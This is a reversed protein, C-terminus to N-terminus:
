ARREKVERFLRAKEVRAGGCSNVLLVNVIIRRICGGRSFRKLAGRLSLRGEAGAFVRDRICLYVNRIHNSCNKWGYSDGRSGKLFSGGNGPVEYGGVHEGEKERDKEVLSIRKKHDGGRESFDDGGGGQTDSADKKRGM